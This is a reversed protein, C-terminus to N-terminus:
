IKNRTLQIQSYMFFDTVVGKLKYTREFMKLQFKEHYVDITNM